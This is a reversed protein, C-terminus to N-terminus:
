GTGSWPSDAPGDNLAFPIDEDDEDARYDLQEPDAQYDLHEPIPASVAEVVAGQRWQELMMPYLRLLNGACRGVRQEDSWSRAEWLSRWADSWQKDLNHVNEFFQKEATM